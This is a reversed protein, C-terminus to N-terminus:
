EFISSYLHTPIDKYGDASPLTLGKTAYAMTFAAPLFAYLKKKMNALMKARVPMKPLGIPLLWNMGRGSLGPNKKAFNM